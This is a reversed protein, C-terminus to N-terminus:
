RKDGWEFKTLYVGKTFGGRDFHKKQAAARVAIMDHGYATVLTVLVEYVDAFEELIPDECAEQAEEVLKYRMALLREHPELYRWETKDGYKEWIAPMNDRVLKPVKVQKREPM